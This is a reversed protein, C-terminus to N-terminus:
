SVSIERSLFKLSRSLLLAGGPPIRPLSSLFFWHNMLLLSFWAVGIRQLLTLLSSKCTSKLLFSMGLVYPGAPSELFEIQPNPGFEPQNKTVYREFLKKFNIINQEAEEKEEQLRQMQARLERNEEVLRLKSNRETAVRENSEALDASYKRITSVAGGSSNIIRQVHDDSAGALPDSATDDFGSFLRPSTTPKPTQRLTISDLISRRLNSAAQVTRNMASTGVSTTPTATSGNRAVVPTSVPRPKSKSSSSRQPGPDSADASGDESDKTNTITTWPSSKKKTRPTEPPSLSPFSTLSKPSTTKTAKSSGEASGRRTRDTSTTKSDRSGDKSRPDM